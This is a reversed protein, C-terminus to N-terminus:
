LKGGLVIKPFLKLMGLKGYRETMIKKYMSDRDNTLINISGKEHLEIANVPCNSVCLGCGICKGHDIIPIGNEVFIADMQCREVCEECGTCQDNDVQAHYNSRFYQSPQQLKKANTLVGCCCGCCCCIFNPKKNNEAQLVFGAKEANELIEITEEKTISRGKGLDLIAKSTAGFALCTERIDSIKCPKDLLDNGERCICNIVAISDANGVIQRADDYSYVCNDPEISKNVPITRLQSTKLTFFVDKYKEEMYEMADKEFEKTLRGGAQLEYMGIAFPAKSYCKGKGDKEYIKPGLIAGKEELHDLKKELEEISIKKKLRKHIRNIPEPLSSLELAIEAEEPTFLQKLIRLEVGSETKPFAIPMNSDIHRQLKRYVDSSSM